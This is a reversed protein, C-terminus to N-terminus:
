DEDFNELSDGELVALWVRDKFDECDECKCNMSHTSILKRLQENTLISV